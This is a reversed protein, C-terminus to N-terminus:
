EDGGYFKHYAVISRVFRVLQKFDSQGECGHPRVRDIMPGIVALLPKVEKHRGAAYALYVKLYAVQRWDFDEPSKVRKSNTEMEILAGLFRRIQATKLDAALLAGISQALVLLQETDFDAVYKTKKIESVIYNNIINEKLNELEKNWSKKLEDIKSTQSSKEIHNLLTNDLALLYEKCKKKIYQKLEKKEENIYLKIIRYWVSQEVIPKTSLLNILSM